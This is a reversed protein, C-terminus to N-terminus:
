VGTNVGVKFNGLTVTLGLICRHPFAFYGASLGLNHQGISVVVTVQVLLVYKVACPWVFSPVIHYVSKPLHQPM